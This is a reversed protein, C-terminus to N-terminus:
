FAYNATLTFPLDPLTLWCCKLWHLFFSWLRYLICFAPHVSTSIPGFSQKTSKSELILDLIQEIFLSSHFFYRIRPNLMSYFMALIAFATWQWEQNDPYCLNDHIWTRLQWFQLWHRLLWLDRPDSRSPTKYPLYTPPYTPLHNPIYTPLDHRRM